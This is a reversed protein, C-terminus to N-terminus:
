PRFEWMAIAAAASANLSEVRDTIPIIVAGDCAKVTEPSLGSGENGIVLTMKNSPEADAIDQAGDSLIAAYVTHGSEKLIGLDKVLDASYALRQVFAAGMSARLTKPSFPDATNGGLVVGDYGLAAAIRIVAGVNGPDQVSDLVAIRGVAAFDAIDAAKPIGVVAAVGQPTREHSIKQGVSETMCYVQRATNKLGSLQGGYKEDAAATIWLSEITLGFRAAEKCLKIGHAVCLGRERRYRADACLDVVQKLKANQRSTIYEM